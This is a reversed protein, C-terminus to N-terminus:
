LRDSRLSCCTSCDSQKALLKDSKAQFKVHCGFLICTKCVLVSLFQWVALFCKSSWLSCIPYGVAVLNIHKEQTCAWICMAATYQHALLKDNHKQVRKNHYKHTILYFTKLSFYCTTYIMFNIETGNSLGAVQKVIIVLRFIQAMQHFPNSSQVATLVYHVFFGFISVSVAINQFFSGVNISFILSLIM